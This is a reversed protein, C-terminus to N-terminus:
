YRHYHYTTPTTPTIGHVSIGIVVMAIVFLISGVVLVAWVIASVAL